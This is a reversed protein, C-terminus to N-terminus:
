LKHISSGKQCAWRFLSLKLMMSSPIELVVVVIHKIDQWAAPRVYGACFASAGTLVCFYIVVALNRM